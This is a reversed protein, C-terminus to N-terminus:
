RLSKLLDALTEFASRKLRDNMSPNEYRLGDISFQLLEVYDNIDDLSENDEFKNDMARIYFDRCARYTRLEDDNWDIKVYKATKMGWCEVQVLGCALCVSLILKKM